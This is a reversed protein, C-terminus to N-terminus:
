GNLATIKLWKCIWKITTEDLEYLENKSLLSHNPVPDIDKKIDPIMLYGQACYCPKVIELVQIPILGWTTTTSNRGYSLCLEASTYEGERSFSNILQGSFLTLKTQCLKKEIVVNKKSSAIAANDELHM